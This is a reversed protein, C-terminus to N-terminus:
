HNIEYCNGPAMCNRVLAWNGNPQQEFVLNVNHVHPGPTTSDGPVAIQTSFVNRGPADAHGYAAVQRHGLSQRTQGDVVDVSLSAANSRGDWALLGRYMLANDYWAVNMNFGATAVAPAAAGALPMTGTAGVPGPGPLPLPAPERDALTSALAALVLIGFALAAWFWIPKKTAAVAPPRQPAPAGPADAAIPSVPPSAFPMAPRADPARPPQPRPPMPPRPAGPASVNSTVADCFQEFEPSSEGQWRSLDAAQVRRFGLPIKVGDDILAPILVERQMAEAAENRVWGSATSANSWLVVVCRAQALAEEIVDDFNRGPPIDHDWWVSWGRRELAGAMLRARERDARAYSIFIDSM